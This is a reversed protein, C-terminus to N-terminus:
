LLDDGPYPDVADHDLHLEHLDPEAAGDDTVDPLDGFDDGTDVSDDDLRPHEGDDVPVAAVDDGPPLDDDGELLDDDVLVIGDDDPVVPDDDMEPVLDADVAPTAPDLAVSLAREWVDEPVPPLAGAGSGAFLPEDDNM